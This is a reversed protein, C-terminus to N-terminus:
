DLAEVNAKNQCNQRPARPVTGLRNMTMTREWPIVEDDWISPNRMKAPCTAHSGSLRQFPDMFSIPTGKTWRTPTVGYASKPWCSYSSARHLVRWHTLRSIRNLRRQSPVAMAKSASVCYFYIFASNKEVCYNISLHSEWTLSAFIDILTINFKIVM